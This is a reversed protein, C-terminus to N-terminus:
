RDPLSSSSGGDGCGQQCQAGRWPSCFPLYFTDQGGLVHAAWAGFVTSAPRDPIMPSCPCLSYSMHPSCLSVM